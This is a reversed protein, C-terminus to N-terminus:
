SDHNIQFKQKSNYIRSNNFSYVLYLIFTRARVHTHTKTNFCHQIRNVGYHPTSIFNIPFSIWKSANTGNDRM